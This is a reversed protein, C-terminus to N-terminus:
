RATKFVRSIVLSWVFGGLTKAAFQMVVVVPLLAGFALTPFIISDVLSAAFNSGNSRVMYPRNRLWQYVLADVVNSVIFAVVSAVAIPRSAPNLAFSLAGAIVILTLMKTKLHRGQWLDHIRDRLAFDLGILLFANIPAVVPGFAVVTLNATVIAAVYVIPALCHKM